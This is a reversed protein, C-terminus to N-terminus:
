QPVTAGLYTSQEKGQLARTLLLGHLQQHNADKNETEGPARVHVALFPFWALAKTQGKHALVMATLVFQGDAALDGVSFAELM